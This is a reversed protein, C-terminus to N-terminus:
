FVNRSLPPTALIIFPNGKFNTQYYDVIDDELEWIDGNFVKSNPNNVQFLEAREKLLECAVVTEIGNKHLGLDGIGSSSFLSIANKM